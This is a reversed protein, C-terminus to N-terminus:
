TKVMANMRRLRHSLLRMLNLAFSPTQQVLFLFRKEDIEALKCDTITTVTASRPAHDILAMEGVMGGPSLEEFIVNGDGIQATGELVVYMREAPDGARFLVDGAKLTVVDRERSFIGLFNPESDAMAGWM